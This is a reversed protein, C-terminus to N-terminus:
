RRLSCPSSSYSKRLSVESRGTEEAIRKFSLDEVLRMEVIRRQESSLKELVQLPLGESNMETDTSSGLSPIAEFDGWNLGKRRNETRAFHRLWDICSNHVITFFWPLAKKGIEYNLIHLHLKLFVDQAVEAAETRPINKSVAYACVRQLHRRFFIEFAEGDGHCYAELLDEDTQDDGAM